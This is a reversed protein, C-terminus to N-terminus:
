INNKYIYILLLILGKQNNFLLNIYVNFFVNILNNLCGYEYFRM